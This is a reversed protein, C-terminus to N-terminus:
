DTADSADLTADPEADNADTADPHTADKTTADIPIGADPAGYVASSCSTLILATATGLSAGIAIAARNMRSTPKMSSDAVLLSPEAGCFPCSESSDKVHRNCQVCLFLKM